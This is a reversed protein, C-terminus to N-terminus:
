GVRFGDEELGDVLDAVYRPEVVLADGFFQAEGGVHESIWDAFADRDAADAGILVLSGHNTISLM